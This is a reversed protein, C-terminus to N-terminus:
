LEHNNRNRSIILWEHLPFIYTAVTTDLHKHGMEELCMQLVAAIRFKIFLGGLKYETAFVSSNCLMVCKTHIPVNPSVNINNSDVTRFQKWPLIIRWHPNIRGIIYLLICQHLCPNVHGYIHIPNNHISTNCLIQPLPCNEKIYRRHSSVPDM